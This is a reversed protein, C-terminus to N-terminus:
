FLSLVRGCQGHQASSPGGREPFRENIYTVLINSPHNRVLREMEGAQKVGEAFLNPRLSGFLPLDTQLMMGLQDCFEYIEPQVPRQTLRIFNLNCVKALLIDDILQDWKKDKVDLQMYGMTNAGRLRVKEGNLYFQGRPVSVTDQTFTRVGFPTVKSDTLKGGDDLLRSQLQYLWPNENEWIRPGKMPIQIKIYNVGYGMPLRSREWDQPKALDGVGPIYTTTPIYEYDMLITDAFNQGYISFNLKVNKIDEHFNNVEVWIEVMEDEPMPRVFVDNFHLPDRSEIYCDQYIGMGPPCHHWGHEPDDWGLGSAAYIKNGIKREGGGDFSGLTTFDNEVKVLLTNKGTKVYPTINFEFPAFFGEHSGVFAGNVFVKAWYDVGKFCIFLSKLDLMERSLEFEKRYYTGVRGEPPGFHPIMVNKWECAGKLVSSFDQLDAPTEVRWEFEELALRKRAERCRRPM